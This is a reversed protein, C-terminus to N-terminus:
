QDGEDPKPYITEMTVAKKGCRGCRRTVKINKPKGAESWSWKQESINPYCHGVLWCLLRNIPRPKM